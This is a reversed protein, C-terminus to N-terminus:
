PVRECWLTTKAYFSNGMLVYCVHEHGEVKIVYLTDAGNSEVPLYTAKFEAPVTPANANSACGGLLLILCCLSHFKM